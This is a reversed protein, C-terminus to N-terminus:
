MLRKPGWAMTLCPVLSCFSLIIGGSTSPV